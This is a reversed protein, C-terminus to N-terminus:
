RPTSKSSIRRPFSQITARVSEDKKEEHLYYDEEVNDEVPTDSKILLRPVPTQSTGIFNKFEVDYEVTFYFDGNGTYPTEYYTFITGQVEFIDDPTSQRTKFWKIQTANLVSQPIVQTDSTQAPFIQTTTGSANGGSYWFPHSNVWPADYFATITTPATIVPGPFYCHHIYQPGLTACSVSPFRRLIVKKFRYYQFCDSLNGLKPSYNGVFTGTPHPSLTFSAIQGPTAPAIYCLVTGHLKEIM